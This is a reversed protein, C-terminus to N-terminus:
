RVTASVLWLTPPPEYSARTVPRATPDPPRAVPAERLLRGNLQADDIGLLLDGPQNGEEIGHHLFTDNSRRNHCCKPVGVRVLSESLVEPLKSTSHRTSGTLLIRFVVVDGTIEIVTPVM